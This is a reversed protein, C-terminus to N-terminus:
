QIKFQHAFNRGDSVTLQRFGMLKCLDLFTFYDEVGHKKFLPSVRAVATLRALLGRARYLTDYADGRTSVIIMKEAQSGKAFISFEPPYPRKLIQGTMGTVFAIRSRRSAVKLTRARAKYTERSTPEPYYYGAHRDKAASDRPWVVVIMLAMLALAGLLRHKSNM